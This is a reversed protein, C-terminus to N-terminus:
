KEDRTLLGTFGTVAIAILIAGLFREFVVLVYLLWGIPVAGRYARVNARWYGESGLDMFPVFMDLSYFVPSFAPYARDAFRAEVGAHQVALYVPAAGCAGPTDSWVGFGGCSWALLWFISAFLLVTAVSIRVTKWPNFGYDAVLHLLWSVFRRFRPTDRALRQRVRREISLEQAEEDHGMARLVTAAQRWPQPNFHVRIEEISQSALWAARAEAIDAGHDARGSPYELFRYEFGDLVLHQIEATDEGPPTICLRDDCASAQQGLPAPWGRRDDELTDCSARSLDMIGEPCLTPMVLRGDIRAEQLAIAHHRFREQRAEDARNAAEGLGKDLEGRLRAVTAAVFRAGSLDVRGEVRARNAHLHGYFTSGRLAVEGRITAEQLRVTRHRGARFVSDSLDLVVDVTSGALEIGGHVETAERLFVGGRFQGSRADVATGSPHLFRAREAGFSGGIEAGSIDFTGRVVTDSMYWGRARISSALIATGGANDFTAHEAAFRETIRADSVDVGGNVVAGDMLWRGVKAIYAVLADAGPNDFRAEVATFDTAIEARVLNCLGAVSAQAMFWADARVSQAFIAVGGANEFSAGCAEFHGAITAGNIDFRGKVKARNMFWGATSAGQAYVTVDGADDFTVGNASFQGRITAAMMRVGGGISSNDLMVRGDIVASDLDIGREFRCRLFLLDALAHRNELDLKDPVRAGILRLGYASLEWDPWDRHRFEGTALAAILAASVVRQEELLDDCDVIQGDASAEILQKEAESPAGNPGGFASFERTRM